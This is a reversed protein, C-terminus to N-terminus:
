DDDGCPLSGAEGHEALWQKWPLTTEGDHRAARWAQWCAVEDAWFAKSRGDERLAFPEPFEENEIMDKVQTEGLGAHDSIKYFRIVRRLQQHRQKM